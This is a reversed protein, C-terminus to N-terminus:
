PRGPTAASFTGREARLSLDGGLRANRFPAQALLPAIAPQLAPDARRYFEVWGLIGGRPVEQPRGTRAQFWTPDRVGDLVRRALRALRADDRGYWDEGRSRALEAMLVLPALAFNHYSLARGGRALELPLTGDDQIAALAADYITRAASVLAEDGTAVGSAMAALGVWYAHNNQSRSRAQYALAANALRQLWGDIRQRQAPSAAPRLPLYALALGALTWKRQYQAQNSSMTGLMAGDGAWADLWALACAAADADGALARDAQRSVRELFADFPQVSARNQAQLVPDVVSHQADSYYSNARIDGPGPPPAPCAALAAPSLLAALWGYRTM